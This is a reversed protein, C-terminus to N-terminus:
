SIYNLNATYGLQPSKWGKGEWKDRERRNYFKYKHLDECQYFLM